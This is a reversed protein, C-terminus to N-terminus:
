FSQLQSLRGEQLCNLVISLRYKELFSPKICNERQLHIIKCILWNLLILKLFYKFQQRSPPVYVITNGNDSIIVTVNVALLWKKNKAPPVYMYLPYQVGPKFNAHKTNQRLIILMNKFILAHMKLYITWPILFSM